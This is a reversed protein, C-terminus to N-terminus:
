RLIPETASAALHAIRAGFRNARPWAPVAQETLSHQEHWLIRRCALDVPALECCPRREIALWARGARAMNNNPALRAMAM